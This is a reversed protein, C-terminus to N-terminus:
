FPLSFWIRNQGASSEAGVKGGHAEVLEKVIALGIGAGGQNRSRSKDVRFFHEFLLPLDAHSIPEGTNAVEAKLAGGPLREISVSIQGGTPTYRVANDLLNQLVQALKESDASIAAAADSFETRVAISKEEFQNKFLTLTNSLLERLDMAERRLTWRAADAASLRMLDETLNGLRLTEEHLSSLLHPTPTLTQNSMAEIYGRINTLPARLEHAIDVTMKKRLQETRQLNDIMANFALGLEGVEDQRGVQVRATYEGRSIQRSIALMQYLPSLLRRVLLFGLTLGAVLSLVAAWFLGRHAAELFMDLVETKKPVQYRELLSTFYDAAFFEISLWGVLTACAITLAVVGVLRILLQSSALRSDM